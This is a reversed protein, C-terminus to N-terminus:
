KKLPLDNNLEKKLTNKVEFLGLTNLTSSITLDHASYIWLSRDPKLTSNIKQSFREFMEKILSGSHLRALKKNATTMKFYFYAIRRLPSNPELAKLAWDSLRNFISYNVNLFIFDIFNSM